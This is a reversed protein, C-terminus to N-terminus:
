GAALAEWATLSAIRYTEDSPGIGERDLHVAHLGAQRAGLIDAEYDDGISV